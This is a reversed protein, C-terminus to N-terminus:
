IRRAPRVPSRARWTGSSTPPPADARRVALRASMAATLGSVLVVSALMFFLAVARGAVTVPVKDGYGVGTYTVGSWWFGSGIGRLPSGGFSPNRRREVLWMAIGATLFVLLLAALLKLFGVSVLSRLLALVRVGESDALVAIALDSSLVTRSFDVSRERAATVAVPGVVLDVTGDALGALLAELRDERYRYAAGMEKAVAEFLEVELGSWTGDAAKMAFPPASFVGVVLPQGPPAAGAAFAGLAALVVAAAAKV